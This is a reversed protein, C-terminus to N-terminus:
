FLTNNKKLKKFLKEYNNKHFTLLAKFILSSQIKLLCELLFMMLPKVKSM